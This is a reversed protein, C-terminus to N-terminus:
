FSEIQESNPEHITNESVLGGLRLQEVFEFAGPPIPRLQVLGWENAGAAQATEVLRLSAESLAGIREGYVHAADTFAQRNASERAETEAQVAETLREQL